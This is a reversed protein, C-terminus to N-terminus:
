ATVAVGKGEKAAHRFPHPNVVELRANHTGAPLFWLCLLSVPFACLMVVKQDGGTKWALGLVLALHLLAAHM